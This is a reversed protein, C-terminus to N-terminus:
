EKGDLLIMKRYYGPTIGTMSKYDRNFHSPYSYGLQAAVDGITLKSDRLLYNAQEMKKQKVYDPFTMGTYKGFLESLYKYSLRHTKAYDALSMSEQLNHEIYSLLDEVLPHRTANIDILSAHYRSICSEQVQNVDEINTCGEVQLIYLDSISYATDSSLGLNIAARAYLSIGIIAYNKKSRLEDPGLLPFIYDNLSNENSSGSLLIDNFFLKEHVYQHHHTSQVQPKAPPIPLISKTPTNSRMPTNSQICVLLLHQLSAQQIWLAESIDVLFLGFFIGRNTIPYQILTKNQEQLLQVENGKIDSKLRGSISIIDPAYGPPLSLILSKVIGESHYPIYSCPYGTSYYYLNLIQRIHSISPEGNQNFRM